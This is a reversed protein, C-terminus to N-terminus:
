WVFKIKMVWVDTSVPPQFIMPLLVILCVFLIILQKKNQKKKQRRPGVSDLSRITIWTDLLLFGDNALDPPRDSKNTPCFNFDWTGTCWPNVHQWQRILTMPQNSTSISSTLFSITLRPKIVYFHIQLFRSRSNLWNVQNDKNSWTLRIAGYMVKIVWCAHWKLPVTHLIRGDLPWIQSRLAWESLIRTWLKGTFQLPRRM